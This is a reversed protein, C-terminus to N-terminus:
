IKRVDNHNSDAEFSKWCCERMFNSIVEIAEGEYADKLNLIKQVDTASVGNVKGNEIIDELKKITNCRLHERHIM